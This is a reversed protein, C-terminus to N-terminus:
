TRRGQFPRGVPGTSGLDSITFKMRGESRGDSVRHEGAHRRGDGNREGDNRTDATFVSVVLPSPEELPLPNLLVANVLTFITTNAGIGLSLAVTNTLAPTRVLPRIGYKLSPASYVHTM